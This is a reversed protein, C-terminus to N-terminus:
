KGARRNANAHRKAKKHAKKKHKKKHKTSQAPPNGPGSFNASAAGPLPAGASGQGQCSGESNPDCPVPPAPPEAFGGGIRADYVSVRENEDEWNLTEPTVLYVNSGESSSGVFMAFSGSYPNSPDRQGEQASVLRFVQGHSWEYVNNQGQVAGPALADLSSFFVQAGGDGVTLVQPPHLKNTIGDGRVFVEYGAPAVSPQGDQRCSACVLAESSAQSDYLFVEPAGGSEYATYDAVSEFTLYRGESSVDSWRFGDKAQTFAFSVEGNVESYVSSTDADQNDAFTSGKGPVLQGQATFYVHTGDKSAGVFTGVSAGGADHDVSLDTLREGEPKGFDYEYLDTGEQSSEGTLGANATFFVKSGDPTAWQYTAEADAASTESLSIDRTTSGDERVFIAQKGLEAPNPSTQRGASFFIRSGDESIADAAASTVTEGSPGPIVAPNRLVGEDWEYPRSEGEGPIGPYHYTTSFLVKGCDQAAGIVKFNIVGNKQPNEPALASVAAYSNDPNIRYLNSGGAEIALRTAPDETLPQWSEAFGCSLDDSLWQTTGSVSSSKNRENAAIFPTSLQTSDWGSPGRTGRYLVEAGKTAELYGSEAVYALAGSSQTAAQFHMEAGASSEGPIAIPGADRRSVLEFCRGEPLGCSNLTELARDPSAVTAVSSSAVIRYHYTTAASLGSLTAKVRVPTTGAGIFPEYEAPIQHGYSATPGWEFRYSTGFGSPNIRAEISASTQTADLARVESVQPPGLTTFELREGLHTGESDVTVLRFRYTAGKQLGSLAASVAHPGFDPEIAAAPPNCSTKTLSTATELGWEFYCQSVGQGEPRLTGNLTATTLGIASAPETIVTHATLLSETASRETGNENKAALRFSYEAGNPVLGTITAHVVHESTDTPIAEECPATHESSSNPPGWEFFCEGVEIGEPNVTGTLTAQSGTVNAASNITVTPVITPSGYIAVNTSVYGQPVYAVYIDGSANAAVGAVYALNPKEVILRSLVNSTSELSGDFEALEETQLTGGQVQSASGFRHVIPNGTTPDVTVAGYYGKAFESFEGTEENVKLTRARTNFESGNSNSLGAAAFVWGASPGSGVALNCLVEYGKTPFVATNDANTPPAGTSAFKAIGRVDGFTGAIYINGSPDVAVGCTEGIGKFGAATLQSLYKGESSFVDVLSKSTQTVYIDGNIPDVTIQDEGRFELGNQPTKDCSAPEEACPKGGPGAKGDIANSGLAAFATTTGDANFRTITKEEGDAVATNGVLVDGTSPDVAIGQPVEFTPQQASGFAGEFPRQYSTAAASAALLGLLAGSATLAALGLRARRRM